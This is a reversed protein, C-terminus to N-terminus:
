VTLDGLPKPMNFRRNFKSYIALLTLISAWVLSYIPFFSFVSIILMFFGAGLYYRTRKKNLAYNLVFRQKKPATPLEPLLEANQLLSYVSDIEYTCVKLKSNAIKYNDIAFKCNDGLKNCFIAIEDCNSTSALKILDILSDVGLGSYNFNISVFKKVDNKVAIFGKETKNELKYNANTYLSQFMQLNDKFVLYTALSELTQKKATKQQKKNPKKTLLYLITATLLGAGTAVLASLVANKTYYQLWLYVLGFIM